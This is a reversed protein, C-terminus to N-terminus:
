ILETDKERPDEVSVRVFGRQRAHTLLKSVNPRSVHLIEAVEAQSRGEHYLKAADVALRDRRTLGLRDTKVSEQRCKGLSAAQVASLGRHDSVPNLRQHFGVMYSKSHRKVSHVAGHRM